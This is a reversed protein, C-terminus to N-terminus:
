WWRYNSGELPDAALALDSWVFPYKEVKEWWVRYLKVMEKLDNDSLFFRREYGEANIYVPKCGLSAWHGLRITEITWLVGESVRCGLSPLVAVPPSPFDNILSMDEAYELLEPIDEKKFNPVEVYGAPGETVYTGSKLQKIFTNVDPNNFDIENESCGTLALFVVLLLFQIKNM